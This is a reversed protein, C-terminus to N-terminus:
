KCPFALATAVLVLTAAANTLEEPNQQLYKTVIRALQGGELGDPTCMPFLEEREMITVTYADLAGMSFMICVIKKEEAECARLLDNGTLFVGANVPSCMMLAVALFIIKKM